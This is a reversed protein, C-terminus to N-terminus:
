GLEFTNAKRRNDRKPIVRLNEPVHLGCVNKGRLPIIHDVEYPQGTSNTLSVAAEYVGRISDLDAWPPTAMRVREIRRNAKVIM